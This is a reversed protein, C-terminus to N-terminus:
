SQRVWFSLPHRVIFAGQARLLEPLVSWAWAASTLGLAIGATWYAYPSGVLMAVAAATGVFLAGVFLYRVMARLQGGLYALLLFDLTCRVSWAAAAGALGAFHIGGFLLAAYPLLEAVHVKASLDPRGRAQLSNIAVLGLANTWFGLLLLITVPGTIRSIEASLWFHLFPTIAVIAAITLPTVLAIMVRMADNSRGLSDAGNLEALRPFIARAFAGPVTQMQAILNYGIVYFGVAAAGIWAGIAFRDFYVLLPGAMGTLTVWGGFKVLAAVEAGSQREPSGLPVIGRCALFQAVLVAGRALLTATILLSLRPGFLWASALPLVATLINGIVAIANAAGFARRGDLVGSLLSQV